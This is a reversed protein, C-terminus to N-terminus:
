CKRFIGFPAPRRGGSFFTSNRKIELLAEIDIRDRARGAARELPILDDISILPLALGAASASERNEWARDFDLCADVLVDVQEVSQKPNFFSLM